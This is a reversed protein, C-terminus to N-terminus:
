KIANVPCIEAADKLCKASSDKIIAKGASIEIGDPCVNTCAGCGICKNKDIKM